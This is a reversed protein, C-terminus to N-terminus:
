PAAEDGAFMGRAADSAGLGVPFDGDQCAVEVALLQVAGVVHHDSAVARDVEGIGGESAVLEKPNRSLRLKRVPADVPDLRATVAQPEDGGIEVLRVPQGERQVFGLEEHVVGHFPVDPHEIYAFIAAEGITADPRLHGSFAVTDGIPEFHIACAVDVAGTGAADM